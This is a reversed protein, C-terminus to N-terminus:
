GHGDRRDQKGDEAEYGHEYARKARWWEDVAGMQAHHNGAGGSVMGSFGTGDLVDVSAIIRVGVARLGQQEARSMALEALRALERMYRDIADGKNDNNM